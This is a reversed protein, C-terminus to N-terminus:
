FRSQSLTKTLARRTAFASPKEVMQAHYNMQPSVTFIANREAVDPLSIPAIAETKGILKM